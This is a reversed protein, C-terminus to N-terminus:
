ISFIIGRKILQIGLIVVRFFDDINAGVSVNEFVWVPKTSAFLHDGALTGCALVIPRPSDVNVEVQAGCYEPHEVTVTVVAVTLEDRVHAPYTITALGATDSTGSLIGPVPRRGWGYWSGREEKSRMGTPQVTAGALPSGDSAIVQVRLSKTDV